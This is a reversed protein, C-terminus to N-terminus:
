QKSGEPGTQVAQGTGAQGAAYFRPALAGALAAALPLGYEFGRLRVSVQWEGGALYAPYVLYALGVSGTFLLLPLSDRLVLLPLLWLAYWPLVNPSLVLVAAVVGLGAGAPECRRWALVLALAVVAALAARVAADHGALAALPAFLSENFRWHRSYAALSRVLGRGAGLFPLAWVGAVLAALVAHWPRFRRLWALAVLGPLLKAAFGLGIAGAAAAVRGSELALLALALLLLGLAENHGSGAVEVLALPSWALVLVREPPQGRRVLAALLAAWAALECLVLFLKMAAVSDHLAVVARAALQWLPPYVATYDAHNLGAYVEDRLGTWREAEPRDRWAYPNGGHLQIRGEWVYRYVDDSVLPAAPVLALRWAAAVALAVLLGRRPLGRAVALAVLYCAFASGYLLLHAGVRGTQDGTTAWRFVCLSLVLGCCAFLLARRPTM